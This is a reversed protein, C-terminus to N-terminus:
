NYIDFYKKLIRQKHTTLAIFVDLENIENIVLLNRPIDNIIKIIM